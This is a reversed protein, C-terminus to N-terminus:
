LQPM